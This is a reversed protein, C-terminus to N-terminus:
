GKKGTVLDALNGAAIRDKEQRSLRLNEIRTVLPAPEILPMDVGFVIRDTGLNEILRELYFTFFACAGSIDIWLNNRRNAILRPINEHLYNMGGMHAMIFRAGPYATCLDLIEVAHTETSSHILIPVNHAQALEIIAGLGPEKADWGQIYQCMEGVLVFPGQVVYNKIERLSAEPLKPNVCVGGEFRDPYHQVVKSVAENGRALDDPNGASLGKVSSIVARGVGASDMKWLLEEPSWGGYRNEDDLHSHCDYYM